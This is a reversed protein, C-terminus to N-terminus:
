SNATGNPVAYSTVGSASPSQSGVTRYPHGVCVKKISTVLQEEMFTTTILVRDSVRDVWTRFPFLTFFHDIFRLEFQHDRGERQAQRCYPVCSEIFDSEVERLDLLTIIPVRDQDIPQNQPM